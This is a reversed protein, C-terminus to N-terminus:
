GARSRRKSPSSRPWSATAWRLGSGVLKGYGDLLRGRLETM